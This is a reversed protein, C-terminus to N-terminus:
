LKIVREYHNEDEKQRCELCLENDTGIDFARKCRKCYKINIM